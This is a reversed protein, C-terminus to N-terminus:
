EIYNMIGSFFGNAMIQYGYINPHGWDCFLETIDGYGYFMSSLDVLPAELADAMAFIEENHDDIASQGYALDGDPNVPLITSLIPITGRARCINVMTALHEAVKCDYPPDCHYPDVSDNVGFMILMIHPCQSVLRPKINEAGWGSKSGPEAVNVTTLESGWAGSLKTVLLDLYGNPYCKGFTISDGYAAIRHYGIKTIERSECYPGPRGDPDFSAVSWYFNGYFMKWTQRDINMDTEFSFEEGEHDYVLVEYKGARDATFRV